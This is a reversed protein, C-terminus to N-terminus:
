NVLKNAHPEIEVVNNEADMQRLAWEYHDIRRNADAIIERQIDIAGRFMRRMADGDSM